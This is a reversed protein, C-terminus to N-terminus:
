EDDPSDPTAPADAPRAAGPALLGYPAYRSDITPEIKRASAIDSAGGEPDGSALRALGRTYFAAPLKPNKDLAANEDAIAAAYDKRRLEVLARTDLLGAIPGARKIALDIDKEARDLDANALALTWSRANLLLPYKADNRHLDVVADILRLARDALGVREYLVVVPMIELSGKPTAAAAADLAAVAAARDGKRLKLQARRTLLRYDNPAIVLAADIDAAALDLRGSRGYAGARQALLDARSPALKIASTLDAIAGPADGRQLRASGRGAFADATTPESTQERAGMDVDRTTSRRGTESDISASFIPGGNYTLFMLRQPQSVLVHHSILFDVGLLMDSHLADGRDEIVRIPSHHIDEGGISILETPAIWSERLHAGLGGMQHSAVVKPTALDIGAREAASRGIITTPSGTDLAARMSHGNVFVEVYIHHDHDNEGSLLRAQGVAMGEGWYALNTKACGSEKMLKVSGKALDFESDWLGLLNAGLFANGSDSGGVLFEMNHLTAGVIGFDRVRTLEPTFSGGIGRMYFGPPLPETALGLEVAKAKPMFNFFAGSDLWVRSDKDNIRVAVSARAGEMVVPLSALVGVTCKGPGAFAPQPLSALLAALLVASSRLSAIM